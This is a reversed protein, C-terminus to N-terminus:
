ITPSGNQCNWFRCWGHLWCNGAKRFYKRIIDYHCFECLFGNWRNECWSGQGQVEIQFIKCNQTNWIWGLIYFFVYSVSKFNQNFNMKANFPKQNCLLESFNYWYRHISCLDILLVYFKTVYTSTVYDCQLEVIQKRFMQVGNRLGGIYLFQEKNVLKGYNNWFNWCNVCLRVELSIVLNAGGEGRYHWTWHQLDIQEPSMIPPMDMTVESLSSALSSEFSDSNNTQVPGLRNCEEEVVNTVYGSLLAANSPVM